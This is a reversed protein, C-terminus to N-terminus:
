ILGAWAETSWCVLGNIARLVLLQHQNCLQVCKVKTPSAKTGLTLVVGDAADDEAVFKALPLYTSDVFPVGNSDTDTTYFVGPWAGTNFERATLAVNADQSLELWAYDGVSPTFAMGLNAITEKTGDMLGKFLFSNPNCLAQTRGSSDTQTRIQWATPLAKSSGGGGPPNKQASNASKGAGNVTAAGASAGTTREAGASSPNSQRIGRLFEVMDQASLHEPPGFKITTTGSAVAWSVEQVMAGMAAWEARGGTLHLKNGLGVARGIEAETTVFSGEYHLTNLAIYLQEALGEPVPEGGTSSTVASYVQNQANTAIVGDYFWRLNYNPDRPDGMNFWDSVFQRQQTDSIDELLGNYQFCAGLTLQGTKLSPWAAEMWDTISGGVLERPLNGTDWGDNLATQGDSALQGQPDMASEWSNQVMKLKEASLGAKKLWPNRNLFWEAVTTGAADPQPLGKTVVSQKQRATQSGSLTLTQVLAKVAQDNAGVPWTDPTTTTWTNEDDTHQQEYKLTVSPVQLDHRATIALSKAISSTMGLSVAALDGRREINLTPPTTSYDFWTVADPTWRLLTKVVEACTLDSADRTPAMVGVLISGIQFPAGAGMAWTLAETIQAGTTIRNGAPDQCLVLHSRHESGLVGGSKTAWAQQFVINELYWWPGLLTFRQSESTGTMVAEPASQLTGVFVQAAGQLIKVTDGFAFLPDADAAPVPLTFTARDPVRSKFAFAIDPIGLASALTAVPVHAGGQLTWNPLTDPM